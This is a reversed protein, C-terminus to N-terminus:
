VMALFKSDEYIYQSNLALGCATFFEEKLSCFNKRCLRLQTEKVFFINLFDRSRFLLALHSHLCGIRLPPKIESTIKLKAGEFFHGIERM